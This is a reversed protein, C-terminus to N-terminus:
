SRETAAVDVSTRVLALGRILPWDVDNTACEGTRANEGSGRGTAVIVSGLVLVLLLLSRFPCSGCCCASGLGVEDGRGTGVSSSSYGDSGVEGGVDGTVSGVGLVGAGAGRWSRVAIVASGGCSVGGGSGM